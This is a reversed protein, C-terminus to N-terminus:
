HDTQSIATHGADAAANRGLGASSPTGPAYTSSASRRSPRRHSRPGPSGNQLCVVLRSRTPIEEVLAEDFRTM